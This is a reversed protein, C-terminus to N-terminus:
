RVSEPAEEPRGVEESTVTRRGSTKVGEGDQSSGAARPHNRIVVLGERESQNKKVENTM